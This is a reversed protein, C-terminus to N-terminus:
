RVRLFRLGILVICAVTLGITLWSVHSWRVKRGLRHVGPTVRAALRRGLVDTIVVDVGRSIRHGATARQEATSLRGFEWVMIIAIDLAAGVLLCEFWPRPTLLRWLLVAPGLLISLVVIPARVAEPAKFISAIIAAVALVAFGVALQTDHIAFRRRM